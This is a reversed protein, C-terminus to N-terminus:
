AYTDPIDFRSVRADFRSLPAFSATRLALKLLV